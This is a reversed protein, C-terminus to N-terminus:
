VLIDRILDTVFTEAILQYWVCQMIKNIFQPKVKNILSM